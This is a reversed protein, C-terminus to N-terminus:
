AIQNNIETNAHKCKILIEKIKEDTRKNGIVNEYKLHLIECWEHISHIEGDIEIKRTSSRNNCNEKPTVYRCNNPEYNGNNNIRDIQLGEKWGNKLSWEFFSQFSYLWEECMKIGRGGYRKYSSDNADYCRRKIGLWKHYLPHRSLGDSDYKTPKSGHHYLNKKDQERKLCGCSQIQGSKVSDTRLTKITGCECEFVWYTKRSKNKHSFSIATLRGFKQGTIDKRRIESM